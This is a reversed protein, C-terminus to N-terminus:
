LEDTELPKCLHVAVQGPWSVTYIHPMSIEVGKQIKPRHKSNRLHSKIVLQVTKLAKLAAFLSQM